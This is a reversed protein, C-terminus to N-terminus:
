PSVQKRKEKKPFWPFFPSTREAYDEFDRNGVYKKELMSVGSIRLLLFTILLPSIIAAWGNKVSLAMLFIGWWMAAEGFYNPHRTWRWLGGTMIKGKNEPRAKFRSLQYDGAAEFYFGALWVCLGLIDIPGIGPKMSHIILMVQFSIILLFFGQLMYIQFFSRVTFWKGWDQRWKAYRFDEGKRRKRLTIHAALRIGWILILVLVLIHRSTFGPELVFTLVSVMIFGLGWGIDVISNDKRITALIFILSMYLFVALASSLILNLM